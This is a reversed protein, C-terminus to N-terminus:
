IMLIEELWHNGLSLGTANDYQASDTVVYVGEIIEKVAGYEALKRFDTRRINVSYRALQKMLTYTCGEEKLRNVLDLSNKRNVIVNIGDDDILHFLNSATEFCIEDPKYLYHKIDKKDFTNKRSYLQCFYEYMVAPAFWDSDAPLNLRANNADAIVGFPKRGEPSLSFVFTHGTKELGERNCRGAAQLISDLGAEQRFVVPFDIDVGAEVLQTSVVRLIPQTGDKLITRIRAITEDIHDPCMMKSLHIKIGDSPLRDYIEKADQRTNVICLVKEYGSLKAAIEDYTLGSDDIILKVRRLRHHLMMDTPIIEKISEIGTFGVNPNVGEILGSLVPQSATTFLFSVGFLKQYATMADVIPRLFDTPLTQVEDLIIVSNVINHLKRCNGPKNSFMSEFLQVNTTVIVPSDWNETALIIKERLETDQVDYPNVGSHHELVNNEGFIRKLLSATQSIISTYPIAIIIRSMNHRVAHNMAWLLSSLTKGGGTPVTLSYFGKEGVSAEVCKEQIEKRILNVPTDASHSQLNHIYSELLPLLSAITSQEQRLNWSEPNMFRETDLRDADILCSFLMRSLHHLHRLNEVCNCLLSHQIENHLTATDINEKNIEDPLTKTRLITEVDTYDHLGTHHSIIQNVLLNTVSNGMLKQAFLGGVYAHNHEDEPKLEDCPIGNIKRIYYQFANREKGKDHLLGLAKGWSPLGIKGAFSEALDAVGNQHQSNTQIVWNNTEPDKYLHSIYMRTISM